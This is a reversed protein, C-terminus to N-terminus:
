VTEFQYSITIPLIDYFRLINIMFPLVLFPSVSVILKFKHYEQVIHNTASLGLMVCTLNSINLSVQSILESCVNDVFM